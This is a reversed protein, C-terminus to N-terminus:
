RDERDREEHDREERERREEDEEKEQEPTPFRGTYWYHLWRSRERQEPGYGRSFRMRDILVALLLGVFLGLLLFLWKSM